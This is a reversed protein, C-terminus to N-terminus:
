RMAGFTDGCYGGIQERFGCQQRRQGGNGRWSGARRGLLQPPASAAYPVGGGLGEGQARGAPSAGMPAAHLHAHANHTAQVPLPTVLVVPLPVHARHHLDTSLAAGGGRILRHHDLPIAACPGIVPGPVLAGKVQQEIVVSLDTLM